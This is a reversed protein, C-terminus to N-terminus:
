KKNYSVTVITIDCINIIEDNNLDAEPNWNPSTPTSGFAKTVIVLDLLDVVGDKNIDGLSYERAEFVLDFNFNAIGKIDPKVYLMLALNIVQGAEIKSDQLYYSFALYKSASQPNWNTPNVVLFIGENGENRVYLTIKKTQNPSLVGWKILSVPKKCDKDWYLGINNTAELASASISNSRPQQVQVITLLLFLTLTLLLSSCLSRL